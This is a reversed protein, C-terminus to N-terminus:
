TNTPVTPGRDVFEFIYRGLRTGTDLTALLFTSVALLGEVLMSGYAVPREARRIEGQCTHM